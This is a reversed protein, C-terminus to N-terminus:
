TPCKDTLPQYKIFGRLIASPYKIFVLFRTSRLVSTHDFTLSCSQVSAGHEKSVWNEINRNKSVPHINGSNQNPLLTFDRKLFRKFIPQLDAHVISM